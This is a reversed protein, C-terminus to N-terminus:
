SAKGKTLMDLIYKLRHQYTHHTTVEMCGADAIRQREEPRELYYQIKSRLDQENNFFVLHKKDQFLAEADKQKDSLVFSGCAMAEFLKPSAQHCPVHSDQYHIVINIKCASFIKVWQDYNMKINVAKTNLPSGASLKHWYPGWVGLNYDSISELIKARNPYYSGVFVVEKVYEKQDSVSLPVRKHYNPDCGFPVWTVNTFGKHRFIDSAETGACFLHDYFVASEIINQFDVPVDTTWLGVPIGMNKIHAITDPLVNHGGVILCVDPKKNKIVNILCRNLRQRDWQQLFPFWSRLRGPVIYSEEDFSILEHGLSLVAQERYVITNIFNPNHYGYLLVKM